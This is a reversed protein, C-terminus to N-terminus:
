LLGDRKESNFKKWSMQLRLLKARLALLGKIHEEFFISEIQKRNETKQLGDETNRGGDELVNYLDRYQELLVVTVNCALMAEELTQTAKLGDGFRLSHATAIKLAIALACTSLKIGPDQSRDVRRAIGVGYSLAKQYVEM